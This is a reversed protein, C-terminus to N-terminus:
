TPALISAVLIGLELSLTILEWSHWSLKHLLPMFETGVLQEYPQKIVFSKIKYGKTFISFKRTRNYHMHIVNKLVLMIEITKQSQNQHLKHIRCTTNFITHRSHLMTQLKPNNDMYRCPNKVNVKM